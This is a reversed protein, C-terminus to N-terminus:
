SHTYGDKEIGLWMGAFPIMVAPGCIEPVAQRRFKRYLARADEKRLENYFPYKRIFVRWLALRQEKTLTM